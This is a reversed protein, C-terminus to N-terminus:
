VRGAEKFLAKITSKYCEQLMRYWWRCCKSVRNSILMSTIQLM